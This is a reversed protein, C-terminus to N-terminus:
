SLKFPQAMGQTKWIVKGRNNKDRLEIAQTPCVDVCFGCSRCKGERYDKGHANLPFQYPRVRVRYVSSTHFPTTVIGGINRHVLDKSISVDSTSVSSSVLIPSKFKLGAIEASLDLDDPM